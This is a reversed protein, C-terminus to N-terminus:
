PKEPAVGAASTRPFQVVRERPKVVAPAGISPAATSLAAEPVSREKMQRVIADMERRFNGADPLSSQLKQIQASITKVSNAEQLLRANVEQVMKLLEKNKDDVPKAKPEPVAQTSKIAEEIRQELKGQANSISDQKQSVDKVVDSVGNFLEVSADMSVVRKGVALIMADLQSVRDQLRLSMVAFLSLALLTLGGFVGLLIKNMKRQSAATKMLAQAAQHMELGAKAALSASRTALEASDFVATKIDQTIEADGLATAAAPSTEASSPSITETTM